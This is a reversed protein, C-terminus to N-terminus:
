QQVLRDVTRDVHVTWDPLALGLARTLKSCDLRSNAPRRAPTPYDTTAIPRIAGTDVRVPHGMRRAREIAHLALGHWSTEGAAALHYLGRELRGQRWAAVALATVDAILEASTPAGIQDAVVSLTEREAALRLMTRIFNGGHAGHVWSTRFVLAECGSSAIAAEGALKTRGYVSHPGTADTERWPRSGSGDFVYDTSYHVLRAGRERAVRALVAVADANVCQATAQDSEARDVATYAAANVILDPAEDGVRRALTALDTLDADAHRLACISGLPLLSRSLEHGVQGQAGLLVIKM